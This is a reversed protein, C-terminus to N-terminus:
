QNVVQPFENLTVSSITCNVGRTLNRKNGAILKRGNSPVSGTSLTHEVWDRSGEYAIVRIVRVIEINM